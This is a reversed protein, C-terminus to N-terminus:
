QVYTVTNKQLEIYYAYCIDKFDEKNTIRHDIRQKIIDLENFSMTKFLSSFLSIETEEFFDSFQMGDKIMESELFSFIKDCKISHSIVSTSSKKLMTYKGKIM